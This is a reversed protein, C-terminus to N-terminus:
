SKKEEDKEKGDPKKEDPKKEDAKKEEPKKKEPLKGVMPEIERLWINRFKVPNGHFQISLPRKDAHKHYKPPETYSTRGQLEYHHQVLVGNHIVTVYGPKEVQGDEGFRPATFLIDYSQWEGPKRSANVLPPSQKYIAACQGDFYTKNDHSDLIQVEYEGMLYVGSNGRGQGNGNVKEPTAFELHLQCDGFSQKSEIGGKAATAVGDEVIWKEGGKWAAAMDKGDFLVIADSPAGGPPTAVTKPEPWEIGSKWEQASALAPILILLAALALRIM